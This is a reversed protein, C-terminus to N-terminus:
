ADDGAQYLPNDPLRSGPGVNIRVSCPSLPPRCVHGREGVRRVEACLHLVTVWGRVGDGGGSMLVM